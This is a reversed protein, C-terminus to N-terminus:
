PEKTSSKRKSMNSLRWQGKENKWLIQIERRDKLSVRFCMEQKSMRRPKEEASCEVVVKGFGNDKLFIYMDERSNRSVDSAFLDYVCRINQCQEVLQLSKQAQQLSFADM